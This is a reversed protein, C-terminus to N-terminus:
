FFTEIININYGGNHKKVLNKKCSYWVILQGTSCGTMRFNINTGYFVGSQIYLFFKM